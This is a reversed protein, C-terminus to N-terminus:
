SLSHSQIQLKVSRAEPNVAYREAPRGGKKRAESPLHSLYGRELLITLCPGLDEAREFIGGKM